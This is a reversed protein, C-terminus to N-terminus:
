PGNKGNGLAEQGIRRACDLFPARYAALDADTSRQALWRSFVPLRDQAKAAQEMRRLWCATSELTPGTLLFADFASLANELGGSATAHGMLACAARRAYLGALPHKRAEDEARSWRRWADIATGPLGPGGPASAPTMGSRLQAELVMALAGGDLADPARDVLAKETQWDGRWRAEQLRRRWDGSGAADETGGGEVTVEDARVLPGDQARRERRRAPEDRLCFLPDGCLVVRSPGGSPQGDDRRFAAGWAAGDRVAAAWRVPAPWARPSGDGVGGGCWFAGSSLARGCLTELSGPDNAAGPQLFVMAASRGPPLDDAVWEGGATRVFWFGEGRWIASEFGGSTGPDWARRPMPIAREGMGRAAAALDDDSGGSGEGVWAAGDPRLFLSCAAMYASAVRGNTLRGTFALRGGDEARGIWDDLALPVGDADVYTLPFDGALTVFCARGARPLEWSALGEQVRRALQRARAASIAATEGAAEDPLIELGQFRGAALALAGPWTGAGMRVFVVGQPDDNFGQLRERLLARDVRAPAPKAGDAKGWSMHLARLVDDAQAPKVGAAPPVVITRAPRFEAIFRPACLDDQFLVPFFTKEDWRSVAELFSAEDGVLVVADLVERRRWRSRLPSDKGEAAWRQRVAARLLIPSEGNGAAREALKWWDRAQQAGQRGAVVEGARLAARAAARGRPADREIKRFLRRFEEERGWRAVAETLLGVSRLATREDTQEGLMERMLVQGPEEGAGRAALAERLRQLRQRLALDVETSLKAALAQHAPQALLGVARETRGADVLRQWARRVTEDGAGGAEARTALEELPRVEEMAREIRERLDGRLDPVPVQAILRGQVDLLFLGGKRCEPHGKLGEEDNWVTAIRVGSMDAVDGLWCAADLTAVDQPNRVLLLVPRRDDEARHLIADVEDGCRAQVCLSPLSLFLLIVRLESSM